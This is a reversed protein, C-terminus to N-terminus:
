ARRFPRYIRGLKRQSRTPALNRHGEFRAISAVRGRIEPEQGASIGFFDRVEAISFAAGKSSVTGAAIRGAIEPFVQIASRYALEVSLQM